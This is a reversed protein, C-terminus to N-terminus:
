LGRYAVYPMGLKQNGALLEQIEQRKEAGIWAQIRGRDGCNTEGVDCM